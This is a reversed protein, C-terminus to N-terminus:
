DLIRTLILVNQENQREYYVRDMYHRMLLIGLGGEKESNQLEKEVKQELPNFPPGRDKLIFDICKQPKFVCSLEIEGGRDHYAYHIVNVIAEELALEIRRSDLLSVEATEIQNRVWSLVFDLSDLHAQFIISM